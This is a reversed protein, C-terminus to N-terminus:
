KLLQPNYLILIPVCYRHMFKPVCVLRGEEKAPGGNVNPLPPGMTGLQLRHAAVVESCVKENILTSRGKAM